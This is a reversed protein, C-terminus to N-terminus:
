AVPQYVVEIAMVRVQKGDSGNKVSKLVVSNGDVEVTKNCVDGSIGDINFFAYTGTQATVKISVLEYGEPVTITMTGAPSDTAYIRIHDGNYAKGTNNGGNIKVSVIEDLTFSQKTTSSTWGYLAILEKVTKSVTIQEVAPAVEGCVSCTGGVFNHGPAPTGVKGCVTCLTDAICSGETFTSCVHVVDIVTVGGQAIQVVQNYLTATGTVTVQDGIGVLTSTRFVLLRNGAEDSIYFSINGGNIFYIAINFDACM